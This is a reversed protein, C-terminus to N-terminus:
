QNCVIKALDKYAFHSAIDQPDDKKSIMFTTGSRNTSLWGTEKYTMDNCDITVLGQTYLEETSEKMIQQFWRVTVRIKDKVQMVSAPDYSMYSRETVEGFKVWQAEANATRSGLMAIGMVLLVSWAGWRITKFM